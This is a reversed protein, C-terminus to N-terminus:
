FNIWLLNCSGLIRLRLAQYNKVIPCRVCSFFGGLMWIRVFVNERTWTQHIKNSDYKINTHLHELRNESVENIHRPSLSRAEAEKNEILTNQENQKWNQISLITVINMNNVQNSQQTKGWHLLHWSSDCWQTAYFLILTRMEIWNFWDTTESWKGIPLFSYQRCVVTLHTAKSISLNHALLQFHM